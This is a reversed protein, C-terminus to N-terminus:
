DQRFPGKPRPQATMYAGVDWAQQLKLLPDDFTIGFPMNAHIFAAAIRADAMGASSNFSDEGWLPPVAYGVGPAELRSGEGGAGHCVACSAAYVSAGRGPDPTERPPPLAKVGMGAIRIDTPSGKGVFRMYAVFAEMERSDHPLERGNMSRTMCGNIRDPLSLYRDDSIMPFSSFTSVFPAAYARRGGDLHCNKCALDNGAYRMAEVPASRGIHVPTDVVLQWGYRILDNEAGAPLSAPAAGRYWDVPYGWRLYGAGFGALAAVLATLVWIRGMVGRLLRGM